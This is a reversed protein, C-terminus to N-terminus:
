FSLKEQFKLNKFWSFLPEGSGLRGTSTGVSRWWRVFTWAQLGSLSRRPLGDEGGKRVGVWAEGMRGEMSKKLVLEKGLCIM